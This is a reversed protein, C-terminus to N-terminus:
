WFGAQHFVPSITTVLRPDLSKANSPQWHRPTSKVRMSSNSSTYLTNTAHESIAQIGSATVLTATYSDRPDPLKERAKRQRRPHYFVNYRCLDTYNHVTLTSQLSGLNQTLVFRPILM